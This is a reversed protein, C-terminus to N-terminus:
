ASPGLMILNTCSSIINRLAEEDSTSYMIDPDMRFDGICGTSFACEVEIQAGLQESASELARFTPTSTELYDIRWIEVLHVAM